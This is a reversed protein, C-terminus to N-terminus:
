RGLPMFMATLNGPGNQLVQFREGKRVPMTFGALPQPYDIGNCGGYASAQQRLESSNIVGGISVLGSNCTGTAEVHVVLFGDSGTTYQTNVSLSQSTGFSNVTGNITLTRGSAGLASDGSVNLNGGTVLSAGTVAGTGTIAGASVSGASMSGATTINNTGVTGVKQELWTKLTAFNGNVESALAPSDPTFTTLQAFAVTGVVALAALWRARPRRSLTAGAAGAKMGGVFAARWSLIEQETVGHRSALTAATIEGEILSILELQTTKM